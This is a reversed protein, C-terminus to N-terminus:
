QALFVNFIVIDQTIMLLEPFFSYGQVLYNISSFYQISNSLFNFLLDLRKFQQM